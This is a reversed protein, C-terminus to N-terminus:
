EAQWAFRSKYHRYFLGIIRMTVLGAYAQVCAMVVFLLILAALLDQLGLFAAVVATATMCVYAGLGVGILLLWIALYAPFARFLTVLQKDYRLVRPSFGHIAVSLITM